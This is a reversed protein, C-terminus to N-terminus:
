PTTWKTRVCFIAFVPGSGEKYARTSKTVVGRHMRVDAEEGGGSRGSVAWATFYLMQLKIM